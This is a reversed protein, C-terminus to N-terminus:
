SEKEDKKKEYIDFHRVHICIHCRMPIQHVLEIETDAEEWRVCDENLCTSYKGM